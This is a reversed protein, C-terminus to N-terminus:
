VMASRPGFPDPLAGEELRDRPAAFGVPAPYGEAVPHQVVRGGAHVDSRLVARDPDDRLIQRQEWVQRGGLVDGEREARAAEVALPRPSSGTFQEVPELETVPRLSPRAIERAPLGLPHSDGTCEGRLWLQQQQVFRERRQIHARADPQPVQEPALEGQEIADANQDGV